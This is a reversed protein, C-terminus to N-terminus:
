QKKQFFERLTMTKSKEMQLKVLQKRTQIIFSALDDLHNTTAYDMLMHLGKLNNMRM